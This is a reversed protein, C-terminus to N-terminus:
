RPNLGTTLDVEYLAEIQGVSVWKHYEEDSMDKVLVFKGDPTKAQILYDDLDSGSDGNWRKDIVLYRYGVVLEM